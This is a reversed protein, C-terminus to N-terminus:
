ATSRVGGVAVRRGIEAFPKGCVVAVELREGIEGLARRRARAPRKRAQGIRQRDAPGSLDDAESEIIELVDLFACLAVVDRFERGNEHAPQVESTGCPCGITRGCTM